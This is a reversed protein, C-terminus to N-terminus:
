NIKEIVMKTRIENIGVRVKIEKRRSIKTKMWEKKDLEKLHLILNNTIKRTEQLLSTDSHVKGKSSGKNQGMSKSHQTEMENTELLKKIEEIVWQNSLLM